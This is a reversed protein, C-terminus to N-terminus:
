PCAVGVSRGVSAPDGSGGGPNGGNGGPLVVRFECMPGADMGKLFADWEDMTFELVPGNPNGDADKQKSDRVRVVIEEPGCTSDAKADAAVEVCVTEYSASSKIYDAGVEVCDGHGWSASSKVYEAGVEVCSGKPNSATAKVFGAGVEVCCEAGSFSSKVFETDM